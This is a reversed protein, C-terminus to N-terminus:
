GVIRGRYYHKTPGSPIIEQQATVDGLIGPMMPGNGGSFGLLGDPAAAPATASGLLGGSEAPQDASAVGGTTSVGGGTAVGGASSPGFGRSIAGAVDGFSPGYSGTSTLGFKNSLASLGNIAGITTGIPAYGPVAFSAVTNLGSFVDGLLGGSTPGSFGQAEAQGAATSLGYGPADFGVPGNVMGDPTASFGNMGWGPNTDYGTGSLAGEGNAGMGGQTGPGGGWDGNSIGGLGASLGDAGSGLGGNSSDAGGDGDGDGGGDDFERLGTKPNIDGQGGYAKLLKAERPNIHALITDGNRGMKELRQAAKKLDKM